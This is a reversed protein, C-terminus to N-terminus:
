FPVLFPLLIKVPDYFMLENISDRNKEFNLEFKETQQSLPSLVRIDAVLFGYFDSDGSIPSSSFRSVWFSVNFIFIIELDYYNKKTEIDHGSWTHLHNKSRYFCLKVIAFLFKAWSQRWLRMKWKKSIFFHQFTPEKLQTWLNVFRCVSLCFVCGSPM